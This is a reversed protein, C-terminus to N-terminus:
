SLTAVSSPFINSSVGIFGRKRTTLETSLFSSLHNNASANLYPKFKKEIFLSYVLITNNGFGKNILWEKFNESESLM